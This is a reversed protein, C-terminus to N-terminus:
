GHDGVLDEGWIEGKMEFADVVLTFRDHSVEKCCM